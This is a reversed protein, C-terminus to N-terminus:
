PRVNITATLVVPVPAGNLHTPEYRWQKAAELAALDIQPTLGRLVKAGSVSGDAAVILEMIVVGAVGSQRMAEPYVAPVDHTKRPSPVAGGPRVPANPEAGSRVVSATTGGTVAGAIMSVGGSIGGRGSFTSLSAHGPNASAAAIARPESQDFTERSTGGGGGGRYSLVALAKPDVFGNDRAPNSSIFQLRGGPLIVGLGSPGFGPSQYEEIIVPGEWRDALPWQGEIQRWNYTYDVYGDAAGNPPVFDALLVAWREAANFILRGIANRRRVFRVRADDDVVILDGDRADIRRGEPLPTAGPGVPVIQGAAPGASLLVALAGAAVIARQTV